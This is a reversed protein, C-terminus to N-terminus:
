ASLRYGVVLGATGAGIIIYDFPQEAFAAGDQITVCGVAYAYILVSVFDLRM